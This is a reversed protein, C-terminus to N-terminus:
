NILNAMNEKHGGDKRIGVMKGRGNGFSERSVEFKSDRKVDTPIM